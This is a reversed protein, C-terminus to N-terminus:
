DAMIISIESLDMGVSFEDVALRDILSFQEVPRDHVSLSKLRNLARILSYLFVVQILLYESNLSQPHTGPIRSLHPLNFVVM